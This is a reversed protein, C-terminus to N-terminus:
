GARNIPTLTPSVRKYHSRFGNFDPRLSVTIGRLDYKNQGKESVNPYHQEYYTPEM